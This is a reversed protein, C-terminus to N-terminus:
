ICSTMLIHNRQRNCHEHRRLYENLSTKSIIEMCQVEIITIIRSDRIVYFNGSNKIRILSPPVCVHWVIQKCEANVNNLLQNNEIEIKFMKKQNAVQFWECIKIIELIEIALDGAATM